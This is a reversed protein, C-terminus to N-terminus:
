STCGLQVVGGLSVNFVEELTHKLEAGRLEELLEAFKGKIEGAAVLDEEDVHAQAVLSPPFDANLARITPMAIAHRCVV